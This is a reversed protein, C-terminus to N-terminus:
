AKKVIKKFLNIVMNKEEKTTVVLYSIACLLLLSTIIRILIMSISCQPLCYSLGLYACGYLVLGIICVILCNAVNTARLSSLKNVEIISIVVSTLQYLGIMYMVVVVPAGLKLLVFM